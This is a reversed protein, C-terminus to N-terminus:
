SMESNLAKQKYMYQALVFKHQDIFKLVNTEKFLPETHALFDARTILTILKKQLTILPALHVEGAGGWILNAYLLYPYALSYYLNILTQRSGFDKLTYIIEITKSVNECIYDM